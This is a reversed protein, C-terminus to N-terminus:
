HHDAESREVDDLCYRTVLKRRAVRGLEHRRVYPQLREMLLSLVTQHVVRPANTVLLLGDVLEYRGDRTEAWALFDDESVARRTGHVHEMALPGRHRKRGWHGAAPLM